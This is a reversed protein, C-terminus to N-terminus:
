NIAHAYKQQHNLAVSNVAPTISSGESNPVDSKTNDQSLFLCHSM